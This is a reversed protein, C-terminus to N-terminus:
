VTVAIEEEVSKENRQVTQVVVAPITFGLGASRAVEKRYEVDERVRDYSDTTSKGAHGLWFQVLGEPARQKRLHTTRFRRFAHAGCAPIGLEELLPHLWRKLINSQSLPKGTRTAFVLGKRGSIFESLLKGVEPDVDVLRKGNKTKLFDQVDSRFAKEVVTIVTGDESVNSINLGLIEGLRMGSSAALIILMRLAQNSTNDEVTEEAANKDALVKVNGPTVNNLALTINESSFTPRHQETSDVVPVEIFESNWKRPFMEEGEDNVASAVVMKVLGFYTSISKPSLGGEVMKAILNKAVANNIQSLPMEGLEPTLWKDICSQWTAITSEAVPKRTRRQAHKLFWEAQQSFTTGLNAEIIKLDKNIGKSVLIEQAKRRQNASSLSGPGSAPCIKEAVLKRGEPTDVRYRVYIWAGLQEVHGQQYRAGMRIRKRRMTETSDIKGVQGDPTSLGNTSTSIPIVQQQDPSSGFAGVRTLNLSPSAM